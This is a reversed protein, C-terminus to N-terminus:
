DIHPNNWLEDRTESLSKILDNVDDFSYFIIEAHSLHLPAEKDRYVNITVTKNKKDHEVEIGDQKM